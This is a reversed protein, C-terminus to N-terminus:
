GAAPGAATREAGTQGGPSASSLGGSNNTEEKLMDVVETMTMSSHVIYSKIKERIGM